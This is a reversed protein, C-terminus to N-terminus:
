SAQMARYDIHAAIAAHQARWVAERIASAAQGGIHACIDEVQGPTIDDAMFAVDWAVLDRGALHLHIFHQGAPAVLIVVVGGLDPRNRMPWRSYHISWQDRGQYYAVKLSGTTRV